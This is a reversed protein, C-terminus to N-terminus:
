VYVKITFCVYVKEQLLFHELLCTCNDAKETGM